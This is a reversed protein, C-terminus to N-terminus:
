NDLVCQLLCANQTLNQIVVPEVICKTNYILFILTVYSIVFLLIMETNCIYQVFYHKVTIQRRCIGDAGKGTRTSNPLPMLKLSLKRPSRGGLITDSM